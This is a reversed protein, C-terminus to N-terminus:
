QGNAYVYNKEKKANLKLNTRSSSAAQHTQPYVNHLSRTIVSVYIREKAAVKEIKQETLHWLRKNGHWVSVCDVCACM